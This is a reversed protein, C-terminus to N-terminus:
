QIIIAAKIEEKEEQTLASYEELIKDVTKSEEQMRRQIVRIFISKKWTPM